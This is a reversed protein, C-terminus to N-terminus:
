LVPSGTEPAIKVSVRPALVVEAVTVLQWLVTLLPAILQLKPVIWVEVIVERVVGLEQPALLLMAGAVVTVTVTFAGTGAVGSCLVLEIPLLALRLKGPPVSALMLPETGNFSKLTVALRAGGLVLLV